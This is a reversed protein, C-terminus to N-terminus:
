GIPLCSLCSLYIRKTFRLVWAIPVGDPFVLWAEDLAARLDADRRATMLVHVNCLVAYGGRAELAQEVVLDTARDFSDAFFEIGLAEGTAAHAM